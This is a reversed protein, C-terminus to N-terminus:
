IEFTHYRIVFLHPPCNPLFIPVAEKHLKPKAPLELYSGNPQCISYSTQIEEDIFHKSCVFVNKLDGIDERCLSRLWRNVLEPPGSPLKFVPIYPEGVYNSRCGPASCRNPM